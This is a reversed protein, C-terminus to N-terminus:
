LYKAFTEKHIEYIVKIQKNKSANIFEVFDELSDKNIHEVLRNIEGLSLGNLHPKIEEFLAAKNCVTIM